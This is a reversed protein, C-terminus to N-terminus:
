SRTGPRTRSRQRRIATSTLLLLGALLLAYTQPEPIAAVSADNLALLSLGTPGAQLLYEFGPALGAIEVNDFAGLFDDVFLAFSDGEQPAFGDLFNLLLTGGFTATGKVMIQDFRGPEVGFIDFQVTSSEELTLDGLFTLRGLLPMDDVGLAPSLLGHNGTGDIAVIAGSGVIDGFNEVRAASATGGLLTLQTGSTVVLLAATELRSAGIVSAGTFTAGLFLDDATSFLGGGSVQLTGRGFVSGSSHVYAGGDTVRLAGNVELEGAAHDFRGGPVHLSGVTMEAGDLFVRGPGWVTLAGSVEFVAGEGAKIFGPDQYVTVIEQPLGSGPAPVIFTETVQPSVDVSGRTLWRSGPHTVELSGTSRGGVALNGTDGYGGQQVVVRAGDGGAGVLYPSGAVWMSGNGSVNINPSGGGASVVLGVTPAGFYAGGDLINLGFEPSTILTDLGMQDIRSGPGSVTISAARVAGAFLARGASSVHISGASLSAGERVELRSGPSQAGNSRLMVLNSAEVRGGEAITLVGQGSEGGVSLNGVSWASGAGSVTATGRSLNGVGVSSHSGDGSAVQAGSLINLVATGGHGVQVGDSMSVLAAAGSVNVTGLSFLQTAINMAGGTVLGGHVELSSVQGGINLLAAPALILSSGSGVRVQGRSGAHVGIHADGAFGPAASLRLASGGAIDLIGNGTSGVDLSNAFVATGSLTLSAHNPQSESGVSLTKGAQLTGGVFTVAVDGPNPVLSPPRVLVGEALASGLTVSHTGTQYFTAFISAHPVGLQWNGPDDWSGDGPNIWTTSDFATQGWAGLPAAAAFVLLMWRRVCRPAISVQM